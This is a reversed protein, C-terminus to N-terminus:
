RKAVERSRAPKARRRRKTPKASGSGNRSRGANSHKSSRPREVANREGAPDTAPQQEGDAMLMRRGVLREIARLERREGASCFTLAIGEAGARGTRGIRHIYSEAEMPLDYNVVHTIGDIDIGRAAVDTAVLVRVRNGRFAELARQRASQSKNGHIATAKVGSRMLKEAVTNATRKTRTFVLVREVDRDKLIEDLLARKGSHEVFMVRQDIQDIRNSKPSVDVAIPDRLLHRALQTIKPPLTASFFMSQREEPLDGIIRNLAPLFGMDLMRDAEDLVFTELQDLRIHGQDMLDILRGPTAVVVHAGRKLARVQSNQHVGGYIVAQRFRVFQGYTQFSAGIQIALERTPSLVLVSPSGPRAPRRRTELQHLIPLAFAATKGTGTQASGLLDRGDLLEPIAQAQIPTPTSYNEARIARQLPEALQLDSFLSPKM